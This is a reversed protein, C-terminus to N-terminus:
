GWPWNDATSYEPAPAAATPGDTAPANHDASAPGASGRFGTIAFVVGAALAVVVRGSTRSNFLRM